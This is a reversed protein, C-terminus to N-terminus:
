RDPVTCSWIFHARARRQARQRHHHPHRSRVRHHEPRPGHLRKRGVPAGARQVRQRPVDGDAEEPVVAEVLDLEELGVGGREPRQAVRADLDHEAEGVIQEGGDGGADGGGVLPHELVDGGVDGLVADVDAVDGDAVLGEELGVLAAELGGRQGGDLVHLGREDLGAEGALHM